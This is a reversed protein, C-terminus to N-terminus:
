LHRNVSHGATVCGNSSLIKKKVIMGAAPVLFEPVKGDHGMYAKM